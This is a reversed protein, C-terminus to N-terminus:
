YELIEICGRVRGNLIAAVIVGVLQGASLSGLVSFTLSMTMCNRSDSLGLHKQHLARLQSMLQQLPTYFCKKEM